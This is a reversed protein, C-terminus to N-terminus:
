KKDASRLLTLLFNQDPQTSKADFHLEISSSAPKLTLAFSKLQAEFRSSTGPKPNVAALGAVAGKLDTALDAVSATGQLQGKSVQLMKGDLKVSLGLGDLFSTLQGTSQGNTTVTGKLSNGDTDSAIAVTGDIAGLAQLYIGLLSASKSQTDKQLQEILKHPIGIAFLMDANGGISEMTKMDLTESALLFKAPKGKSNLIGMAGTMEGKNFTLSFTADAADHFTTQLAVQLMARQQFDVSSSNLAGAINAWGAIDSDFTSLRDAANNSLFSQERSLTAFHKAERPDISNTGINVWFQNGKLAVNACIDIDDKVAFQQKTIDTVTKKFKDPDAAIGTVYKYYGEAFILAMSPDIGSNGNFFAEAIAKAQPSKFSAILSTIEDSPTIKDDSVKCGAKELMASVNAVAVISADSPVTALLDTADASESRQCSSAAGLIILLATILSLFRTM